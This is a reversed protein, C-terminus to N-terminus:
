LQIKSLDCAQRIIKSHLQPMKEREPKILLYNSHHSNEFEEINFIVPVNDILNTNVVFYSQDITDRLLVEEFFNEIRVIFRHKSIEEKPFGCNNLGTNISWSIKLEGPMIKGDFDLVYKRCPFADLALYILTAIITLSLRKM